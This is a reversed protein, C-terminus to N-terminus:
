PLVVMFTIRGDDSRASIRGKHAEAAARAISLGIGYGGSKRTRSSDARYFRDFLRNMDEPLEGAYANSVALVKNKGSKSLSLAIEGGEDSYKLANDLLISVMERISGEDGNMSIDPQINLELSKGQTQAVAEFPSASEWVADSLSFESFVLAREEEELKSLALLSKVLEGLRKTQNKISETWESEGETMEIVEANAQIIAIPTKIEHGADTIFQKQKEISEAVPRIARKSFFWVLIFVAVMSVAAIVCSIVLFSRASSLQTACDVFVILKEGNNETVLYKYIGTYGGTSGSELIDTAYQEAESSTVAAIHGTDIQTISNDDANARVSFYRTEFQTEPTLITGFTQRNDQPVTNEQGGSTQTEGDPKDPPTSQYDPFTGDNDAVMKLLTDAKQDAQNYNLINVVSIIAGVVILFALMAGFVFKRQLRKIM